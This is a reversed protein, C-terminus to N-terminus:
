RILDRLHFLFITKLETLSSHIFKGGDPLETVYDYKLTEANDTTEAFATVSLGFMMTFCLIFAIIRGFRKNSFKM